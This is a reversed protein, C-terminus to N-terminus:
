DLGVGLTNRRLDMKIIRGNVGLDQMYETQRLNGEWFKTHVKKKSEGM